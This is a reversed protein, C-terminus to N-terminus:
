PAVGALIMQEEARMAAEEVPEAHDRGLCHLIGHVLLHALEEEFARGVSSAQARAVAPCLVVDGLVFPGPAPAALSDMPFALVDTPAREGLASEKLEAMREPTVLTIPLMADAPVSMAQLARAAVSSLFAADVPVDQEDDVTVGTFPKGGPEPPEDSM